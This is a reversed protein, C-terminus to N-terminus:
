LKMEADYKYSLKQIMKILFGSTTSPVIKM